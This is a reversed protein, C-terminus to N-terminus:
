KEVREKLKLNMAVFGNHTNVELQKKFLPVLLGKFTESQIFLTTGDKNDILEFKHEGDFVGPFLLHGVWSLEKNKTCTLITPTFSMENSKPAQICVDIKSGVKLLGKISKIFPNWVSYEKIQTLVQWVKEPTSDIKIETKIKLAM